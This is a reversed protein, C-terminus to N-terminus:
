LLHLQTEGVITYPDIGKEDCIAKCEDISSIGYEKLFASSRLRADKTDKLNAM